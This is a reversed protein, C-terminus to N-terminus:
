VMQNLKELRHVEEIIRETSIHCYVNITIEISAHGMIKQLVPLQMGDEVCRTAFTHRLSHISFRDMGIKECQWRISQDVVAYVIPKGTRSLFVLGEFGKQEENRSLTRNIRDRQSKLADYVKQGFPIIRRGSKTKTDHIEHIMKGESYFYVLTRKVSITRHEFDIDEWKLGLLEGGRMGTGLAVVFLNYYPSRRTSELFIHEEDRSLVRKAIKSDDSKRVEIARANHKPILDAQVAKDLIAILIKKTTKRKYQTNQASIAEQMIPISLDKIRVNGITGSLREYRKKYEAITSDRCSASKIDIWDAFWENLTMSSSPSGIREDYAIVKAVSERLASVNRSYVTKRKGFRDTFRAQYTGDKRQSIGVGLERGKLDKGM